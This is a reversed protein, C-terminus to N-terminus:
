WELGGDIGMGNLEGHVSDDWRLWEGRYKLLDNHRKLHRTM